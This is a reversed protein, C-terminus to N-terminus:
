QHTGIHVILVKGSAIEPRGPHFYIRDQNEKDMDDWKLKSHLECCVMVKEGTDTRVFEYNLKEAAKRNSQPSCEIHFHAQFEACIERYDAGEERLRSFESKFDNLAKLHEVILIREQLFDANLTSIASSVHDHFYLNPFCEMAAVVFDHRKVYRALYWQKANWYRDPTSIYLPNDEGLHVSMVLKEQCTQQEVQNILNDYERDGICMSKAIRRALERKLTSLEPQNNLDYLWNSFIEESVVQDYLIDTYVTTTGNNQMCELTDLISELIEEADGGDIIDAPLRNDIIGQCNM